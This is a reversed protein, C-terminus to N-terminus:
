WWVNARVSAPQRERRSCSCTTQVRPNQSRRAANRGANSRDTVIAAHAVFCSFDPLGTSVPSIASSATESATPRTSPPTASTPVRISPM